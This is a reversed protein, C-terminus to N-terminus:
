INCIVRTHPYFPCFSRYMFQYIRFYIMDRFYYFFCHQVHLRHGMETQTRFLDDYWLCYYEEAWAFM